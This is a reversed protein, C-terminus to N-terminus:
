RIVKDALEEFARKLVGPPLPVQKEPTVASIVAGIRNDDHLAWGIEYPIYKPYLINLQNMYDVDKENAYGGVGSKVYQIEESLDNYEKTYDINGVLKTKLADLIQPIAEGPFQDSHYSEREADRQAKLEPEQAKASYWEAILLMIELRENHDM